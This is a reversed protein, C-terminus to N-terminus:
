TSKSSLSEKMKLVDKSYIRNQYTQKLNDITDLIAKIDHNFDKSIQHRAKRIKDIAPDKKM